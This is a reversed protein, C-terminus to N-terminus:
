TDVLVVRGAAAPVIIIAKALQVGGVRGEADRAVAPRAERARVEQRRAVLHQAVELAEGGVRRVELEEASRRVFAAGPRRVAREDRGEAVPRADRRALLDDPGRAVVVLPVHRAEADSKLGKAFKGM